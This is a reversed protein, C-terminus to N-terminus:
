TAFRRGKIGEMNRRNVDDTIDKGNLYTRVTANQMGKNIAAVIRDEMASYDAGGGDGRRVETATLVREGRHLLTPYNDYPITGGIARPHWDDSEVDFRTVVNRPIGNLKKIYEDVKGETNAIEQQTFGMEEMLYRQQDALSEQAQLATEKLKEAESRLSEAENNVKSWEEFPTVAGVEAMYPRYNKNMWAVAEAFNTDNIFGTGFRDMFESQMQGYKTQDSGLIANLKSKLTAQKGVAEAEKARAEAGKEYAKTLQVAVAEEKEQMASALIRQKELRAWADINREIAETNGDIKKGDTDIYNSLKPFLKLAKAALADWTMRGEEDLSWYDGMAQLDEILKKATVTAEDVKASALVTKTNIEEFIAFISNTQLRPNLQTLFETLWKTADTLVPIIDAVFAQRIADLEANLNAVADGYAVANNIEDDSMILGLDSAESLLAKVGDVGEDLMANLEDGGKGFLKRVLIGRDDTSGEYGALALLSENMLQEANKFEGAQLRSLLGLDRLAEYADQSLGATKDALGDVQDEADAFPTAPDAAKIAAQFNIIGKKVDQISAGSQRLAHDWEQYAQRSIGLKKSGKDIGDATEATMNIAEKLGNVIGAIAGVIGTVILATKIKNFVNTMETGFTDGLGQSEEINDNFEDNDLGLKPDSVDMAELDREAQDLDKDFDNTDLTLKALLNFLEM